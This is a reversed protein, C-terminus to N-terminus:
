QNYGKVEWIVRCNQSIIIMQYYIKGDKDVRVHVVDDGEPAFKPYLYKPEVIWNGEKDIFGWEAESVLATGKLSTIEDGLIDAMRKEAFTVAAIGNHFDTAGTFQPEIVMKGETNIFGIRGNKLVKCM